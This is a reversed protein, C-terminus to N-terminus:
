LEGRIREVSWEFAIESLIKTADGEIEGAENAALTLKILRLKEEMEILEDISKGNEDLVLTLRDVEIQEGDGFIICPADVGSEIFSGRVWDGANVNNRRDNVVAKARFM